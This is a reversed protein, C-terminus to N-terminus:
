SAGTLGVREGALTTTIRGSTESVSLALDRYLVKWNSPTMVVTLVLHTMARIKLRLIFPSPLNRTKM